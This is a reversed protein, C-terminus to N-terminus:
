FIGRYRSAGRGQGTDAFAHAGIGARNAEAQQTAQDAKQTLYFLTGAFFILLLGVAAYAVSCPRGTFFDPAYRLAM